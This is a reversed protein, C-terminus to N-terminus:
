HHVPYPHARDSNNYIDETSDVSRTVDSQMRELKCQIEYRLLEAFPWSQFNSIIEVTEADVLAPM